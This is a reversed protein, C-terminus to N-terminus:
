NPNIKKRITEVTKAFTQDSSIEDTVKKIGHIVTSHDRGGLLQGISDLPHDTMNKCLYMAIQRPKPWMAAAPSPCSRTWRSVSINLPCGRYDAAPTIERPQDPSIINQLEKVAIDM